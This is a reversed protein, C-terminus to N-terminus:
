ESPYGRMFLEYNSVASFRNLPINCNGNALALTKKLVNYRCRAVFHGKNRTRYQNISPVHAM